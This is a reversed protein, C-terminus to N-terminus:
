ALFATPPPVPAAGGLTSDSPVSDTINAGEMVSGTTVAPTPVVFPSELDSLSVGDHGTRLVTVGVGYKDKYDLIDEFTGTVQDALSDPLKAQEPSIPETVFSRQTLTGYSRNPYENIYIDKFAYSGKTVPTALRETRDTQASLPTDIDAEAGDSEILIESVGQLADVIDVQALDKADVKSRLRELHKLDTLAMSFSVDATYRSQANKSFRLDLLYGTYVRSDSTIQVKAGREASASGGLRTAYNEYLEQLWQFTLTDLTKASVNLSPLAQGFFFLRDRDFTQARQHKEQVSFALSQILINANSSSTGSAVSTNKLRGGSLLSITAYSDDPLTLTDLPRRIDKNSGRAGMEDKLSDSEAASERAPVVPIILVFKDSM